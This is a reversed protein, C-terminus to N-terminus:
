KELYEVNLQEFLHLKNCSHQQWNNPHLTIFALMDILAEFVYRTPISKKCISFASAQFDFLGYCQLVGSLSM